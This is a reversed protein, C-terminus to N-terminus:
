CPITYPDVNPLCIYGTTGPDGTPVNAPDGKYIYRSETTPVAEGHANDYVATAADVTITGMSWISLTGPAYTGCAPMSTCTGAQYASCQYPGTALVVGCIGGRGGAETAAWCSPDAPNWGQCARKTASCDYSWPCPNSGLAAVVGDATYDALTTGAYPPTTLGGGSSGGGDCGGLVLMGVIVISFLKM